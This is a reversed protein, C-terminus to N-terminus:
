VQQSRPQRMGHGAAVLGKARQEVDLLKEVWEALLAGGLQNKSLRNSREKKRECYSNRATLSPLYLLGWYHTQHFAKANGELRSEVFFRLNLATRNLGDLEIIQPIFLPDGPDEYDVIVEHGRRRLENYVGAFMARLEAVADERTPTSNSKSM